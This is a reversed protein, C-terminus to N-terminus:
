SDHPRSLGEALATSLLRYLAIANGQAAIIREALRPLAAYLARARDLTGSEDGQLVEALAMRLPQLDEATASAFLGRATAMLKGVVPDDAVAPANNEAIVPPKEPVAPAAPEPKGLLEEGDRPAPLGFLERTSDVGIEMGLGTLKTIADLAFKLDESEPMQIQVYALPEADGFQYRLVMRDVQNLTESIMRADGQAFIETEKEQVSAGVADNASSMSSLDAGRYLTVLKRDIRDILAPMPLNSSSGDAKIIEIKGSGDDGYIVGVWENGFSEVASAMALGAASDAGASTRGLVGPMGFKESFAVWDNYSLRKFMYGISAAIMVPAPHTTIMWENEALAEGEYNMGDAIFRLRGTHNEFFQLPVYEFTAALGQTMPKWVIHHAAYGFSVAEMMQEVLRAFGGRQNRDYANEATVHNWFFELAEKQRQAEESDDVALVSWPRQATDLERKAKVAPITDDRKCIVQWLLSVARFDGAEFGDLATTLSQPTLARLPNFRTRRALQMIQPPLAVTESTVRGRSLKANTVGNVARHGNLNPKASKKM